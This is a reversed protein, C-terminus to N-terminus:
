REDAADSTYLLCTYTTCYLVSRPCFTGPKKSLAGKCDMEFVLYDSECLIVGDRNDLAVKSFSRNRKPDRFRQQVSRNTLTAVYDKVIDVSFGAGRGRILREDLEATPHTLSDDSAAFLLPQPQRFHHLNSVGSGNESNYKSGSDTTIETRAPRWKGTAIDQTTM